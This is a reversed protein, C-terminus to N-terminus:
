VVHAVAATARRQPAEAGAADSAASRPLLDGSMLVGVAWPPREVGKTQAEVAMPKTWEEGFPVIM